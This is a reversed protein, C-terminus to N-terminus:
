NTNILGSANRRFREFNLEPKLEPLNRRLRIPYDNAVCNRVDESGDVFELSNQVATPCWPASSNGIVANTEDTCSSHFKGKYYFPFVCPCKAYLDSESSGDVYKLDECRATLISDFSTVVFLKERSYTKYNEFYGNSSGNAVKKEWWDFTPRKEHVPELTFDDIAVASDGCTKASRLADNEFTIALSTMMAARELHMMVGFPM